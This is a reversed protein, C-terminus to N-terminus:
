IDIDFSDIHDATRYNDQSIDERIGDITGYQTDPHSVIDCAV